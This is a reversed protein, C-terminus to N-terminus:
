WIRFMRTIIYPQKADKNTLFDFIDEPQPFVDAIDKLCEIQKSVDEHSIENEEFM